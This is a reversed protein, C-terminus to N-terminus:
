KCQRHLPELIATFKQGEDSNPDVEALGDKAKKYDPGIQPVLEDLKAVIASAITQVLKQLDEVTPKPVANTTDDTQALAAIHATVFITIVTLLKLNM